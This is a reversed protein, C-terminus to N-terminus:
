GRRLRDRLVPDSLSLSLVGDPQTLMYDVALMTGWSQGLLHIRELGLARRVQALEEVFREIRWLAENTPQDSKGGGLQDYFIVPREDALAQLPALTDSTAGPGGHLTLLPVADGKGVVQYWIRGGPIEIYGDRQHVIPRTM